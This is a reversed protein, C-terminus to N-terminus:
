EVLGQADRRLHSLARSKAILVANVSMRLEAAVTEASQGDIVQLRFARWTDPRFEPEILELIRELVHRDHEQDWRRSLDSSPDELQDLMM